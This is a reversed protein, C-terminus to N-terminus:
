VGNRSQCSMSMHSIVAKQSVHIRKLMWPGWTPQGWSFALCSVPQEHHKRSNRHSGWVTQEKNRISNIYIKYIPSNNRGWCSNYNLFFFQSPTLLFRSGNQLPSGKEWASCDLCKVISLFSADVKESVVATLLRLYHDTQIRRGARAALSIFDTTNSICDGREGAKGKGVGLISLM